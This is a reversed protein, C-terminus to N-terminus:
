RNIYLWGVKPKSGDGFDLVYYYTGVPLKESSNITARGNSTGDWDNNYARKEYVKNGWRNYVELKNNPFNEICNIILTDNVGDGNPSFENFILLCGLETITPDDSANGDLDDGDDSTDTVTGSSRTSATAVVSNSVGGANIAPQTIKFSAYYTATEGVLLTGEFSGQDASDFVPEETLSIINGNADLFSDVLTIDTLVIDGINKVEITYFIKNNLETGSVDATKTVEIIAECGTTIPNCPDTPDSTPGGTFTTPDDPTSPDDIGTTEECDTLGDGDTDTTNIGIPSCPDNPDSTPGGTFTTPDDPTSPDDIGTTEECDTLGDGDTDVTNIGIPLCPDNEDFPGPYTTPDEPTSPDDIGTTEECDTLGDGDTDVTNIGIPLC